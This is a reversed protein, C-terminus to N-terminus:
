AAVEKADAEAIEKNRKARGKLAAEVNKGTYPDLNTRADPLSDLWEDVWRQHVVTRTGLKVAKLHGLKIAKYIIPKSVGAYLAADTPTSGIHTKTNDIM